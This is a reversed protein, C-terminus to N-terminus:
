LRHRQHREREIHLAQIALGHLPCPWRQRAGTEARVCTRCHDTGDNVHPTMLRKAWGDRSGIILAIPHVQAGCRAAAPSGPSTPMPTSATTM